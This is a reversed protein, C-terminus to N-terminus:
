PNFPGGTQTGTPTAPPASAQTSTAAAATGTAPVGLYAFGGPERTAPHRHAPHPIAVVRGPALRRRVRPAHHAAIITFPALPTQVFAVPRTAPVALAHARSRPPQQRTPTHTAAITSGAIVAATLAAAALKATAGGGALLAAARERAGDQALSMWDPRIRGALTRTYMSARSVGGLHGALIPPLLVAAQDQFARRLRWANTKHEARCQACGAVHAIARRALEESTAHGDLLATITTSRYGCLRGHDHLIQFRERKRECAELISRAQNVPIALEKAIRNFGMGESILSFVELERGSLEVLFETVLLRDQRALAVQEPTMEAGRAVELAHMAPANEALIEGRRRESHYLNLARQKIGLRLAGCLHKEDKYPRRLLALVTEQYLDELQERSLGRCEVFGRAIRLERAQREGLIREVQERTLLRGGGGSPTRPGTKPTKGQPGRLRVDM